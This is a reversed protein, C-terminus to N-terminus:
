RSALQRTLHEQLRNVFSPLHGTVAQRLGPGFEHLLNMGAENGFTSGVDTLPAAVSNSRLWYPREARQAAVSTLAVVLFSTNVHRRGSEDRTVFIRSAADTARGMVTNRDSAQYRRHQRSQGPNLLRTILEPDRPAPTAEYTVAQSLPPAANEADGPVKALAALEGRAADRALVASPADPLASNRAAGQCFADQCILASAVLLSLSVIRVAIRKVM